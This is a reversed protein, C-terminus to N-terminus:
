LSFLQGQKVFQPFFFHILSVCSTLAPLVVCLSRDEWFIRITFDVCNSCSQAVAFWFLGWEEAARSMGDTEKWLHEIQLNLFLPTGAPSHPAGTGQLWPGASKGGWAFNRHPCCSLQKPVSVVLPSPPFLWTLVAGFVIWYCMGTNWMLYASLSFLCM